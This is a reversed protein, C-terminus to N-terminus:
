KNDIRKFMHRENSCAILFSKQGNETCVYASDFEIKAVTFTFATNGFTEQTYESHKYKDIYKNRLQYTGNVKFPKFEEFCDFDDAHVIVEGNSRVISGDVVHKATIVAGAVNTCGDNHAETLKSGIYGHRYKKKLLYVHNSKFGTM